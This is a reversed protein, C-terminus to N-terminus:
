MMVMSPIVLHELPYSESVSLLSKKSVLVSHQALSIMSPTASQLSFQLTTSTHLGVSAGVSLGVAAGASVIMVGMGVGDGTVGAGTVGAGTSVIMVGMGVGDGAVGAGISVGTGVRVTVGAGVGHSLRLHYKVVESSSPTVAHVLPYSEVISSADMYSVKISHQSASAVVLPIPASQLYMSTHLGVSTGVGVGISAAVRGGTGSTTIVGSGVMHSM